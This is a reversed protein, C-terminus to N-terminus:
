QTAIQAKGAPTAKKKAAPPLTVKQATLGTQAAEATQVIQNTPRKALAHEAPQCANKLEAEAQLWHQEAQGEQCGGNVYLEYARTAITERTIEFNATKM